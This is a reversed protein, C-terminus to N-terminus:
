NRGMSALHTWQTIRGSSCKQKDSVPSCNSDLTSFTASERLINMYVRKASKETTKKTINKNERGKM